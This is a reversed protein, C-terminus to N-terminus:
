SGSNTALQRISLNIGSAITRRGEEFYGDPFDLAMYGIVLSDDPSEPAPISACSGLLAAVGIALLCQKM